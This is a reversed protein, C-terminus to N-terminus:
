CIASPTECGGRDAHDQNYTPTFQPNPTTAINREHNSREEVKSCQICVRGERGEALRKWGSWVHAELRETQMCTSCMRRQTCDAGPLSWESWRHNTTNCQTCHCRVSRHRTETCGERTCHCGNWAHREKRCLTCICGHWAHREESCHKRMCHCGVFAHGKIDCIPYVAAFRAVSSLFPEFVFSYIPAAIVGLLVFLITSMLIAGATDWDPEFGSEWATVLPQAAAYIVCGTLIPPVLWEFFALVGHWRIRRRKDRQQPSDVNKM